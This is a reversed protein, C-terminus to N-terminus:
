IGFMEELQRIEVEPYTQSWNYLENEVLSRPDDPV